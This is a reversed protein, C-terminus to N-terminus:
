SAVFCSCLGPLSLGHLIDGVRMGCSCPARHGFHWRTCFTGSSPACGRSGWFYVEQKAIHQFQPQFHDATLPLEDGHVPCSDWQCQSGGQGAAHWWCPAWEARQPAFAWKGLPHRVQIFFFDDDSFLLGLVALGSLTFADSTSVWFPMRCPPSCRILCLM